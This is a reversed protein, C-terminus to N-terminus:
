GAELSYVITKAGQSVNNRYFTIEDDDINLAVGLVDGNSWADGYAVAGAATDYFQGTSDYWMVNGNRPVRVGFTDSTTAHNNVTTEWYFKGSSVGMTGMFGATNIHSAVYDLNGNKVDAPVFDADFVELQNLTCWNETPTDEVQDNTALGSDTFDNNNGSQDEGFDSSNSYDLHFGNSGYGNGTMKDFGTMEFAFNGVENNSVVMPWVNDNTKVYLYVYGGGDRLQPFSSAISGIDNNGYLAFHPENGSNMTLSYTLKYWEGSTVDITGTTYAGGYGSSNIASSIALGSSTLTEFSNTAANNWASFTSLLDSSVTYQDIAPNKPVWIGNKTEGFSAPTLEQGDVFHTEAMYYDGYNAASNANRAIKMAIANANIYHTGATVNKSITIDQEVGNVFIEFTNNNSNQVGLIHYWASPDRFRATTYINAQLGSAFYSYYVLQDSANFRFASHNASDAGADMIEM